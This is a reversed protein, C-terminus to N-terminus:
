GVAQTTIERVIAEGGYENPYMGPRLRYVPTRPGIKTALSL